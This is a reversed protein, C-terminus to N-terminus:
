PKTKAIELVTLPKCNRHQSIADPVTSAGLLAVQAPFVTGTPFLM